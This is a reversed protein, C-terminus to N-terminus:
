KAAPGVAGLQEMLSWTDAHLWHEVIKGREVRYIAQGSLSVRAGTPAVGLYEGTHTQLTSFLMGVRDREAVIREVTFRYCPFGAETRLVQRVLSPDTTFRSLDAASKPRGDLTAIFREVLARNARAEAPESLYPGGAVPPDTLRAGPAPDSPASGVPAEVLEAGGIVAFVQTMVDSHVWADVIKGGEVRCMAIGEMNPQRPKSRREPLGDPPGRVARVAAGGARSSAHTRAGAPREPLATFFRVVVTGGEGFIDTLVVTFGPYEADFSAVKERLSASTVFRDVVEARDEDGSLGAIFRRVVLKSATTQDADLVM